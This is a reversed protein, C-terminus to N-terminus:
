TLLNRLLICHLLLVTLATGAHLTSSAAVAPQIDLEEKAPLLNTPETPSDLERPCGMWFPASLTQRENEVRMRLDNFKWFGKGKFFYTKGAGM